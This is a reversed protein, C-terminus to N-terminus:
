ICRLFTMVDCLVINIRVSEFYSDMREVRKQLDTVCAELSSLKKHTEITNEALEDIGQDTPSVPQKTQDNNAPLRRFRSFDILHM